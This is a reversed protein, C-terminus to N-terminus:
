KNFYEFAKAYRKIAVKSHFNKELVELASKSDGLIIYASAIHIYMHEQIIVRRDQKEYCNVIDLPTAYGNLFELVWKQLFAKMSSGVGEMWNDGKVFWRIRCEKPAVLELPQRLTIDPANALLLKDGAMELSIKNVSPMTVTLNPYIHAYAGKEYNPKLFLTMEIEQNAERTTRVYKMTNKKRSFGHLELFSDLKNKMMEKVLTRVDDRSEM